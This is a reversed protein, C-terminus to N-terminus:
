KTFMDVICMGIQFAEQVFSMKGGSDVCKWSFIIQDSAFARKKAFSNANMVKKEFEIHQPFPKATFLACEILDIFLGDM